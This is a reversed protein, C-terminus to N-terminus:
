PRGQGEAEAAKKRQEPILPQTPYLRENGEVVVLTDPELPGEVVVRDAVAFLERVPVQMAMTKGPETTQAIFVYAGLDNRLIANRHVTLAEMKEGTPVTATVSMGPAIQAPDEVDIILPFNRASSDVQPVFRYRESRLTQGTATVRIEVTSGATQLAGFFRQPVSLWVELDDTSVLDVVPDGAQLWEGVEIHRTVVTGAFPARIEADALRDEVLEKRKAIVELQKEAQLKRANASALATEADLLEKPNAAGRKDLDRLIALDRTAHEFDANREALVAQALAADAETQAREIELRTTDIRALLAGKEVREGERARLLLVAGPEQAAVRSRRRARIEGTVTRQEQVQQRVAPDVIVPAPGQAIASEALLATVLLAILRSPQM